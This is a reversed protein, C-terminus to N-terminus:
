KIIMLTENNNNHYYQEKFEGEENYMILFLVEKESTM